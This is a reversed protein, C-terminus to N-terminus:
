KQFVEEKETIATLNVKQNYEILENYYIEFRSLAENTINFKSFTQIKKGFQLEKSYAEKEIYSQNHFPNKMAELYTEAQKFEKETLKVLEM